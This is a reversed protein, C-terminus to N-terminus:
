YRTGDYVRILGDIKDFRIRLPKYDILGKYSINYVLINQYSKKDILIYDVDFDEIKIIDDFYCCTRNKIDIEKLKDNSEM